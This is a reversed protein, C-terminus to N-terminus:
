SNSSKELTTVPLKITSYYCVSDYWLMMSHWPRSLTRLAWEAGTGLWPCPQGGLEPQGTGWGAQGPAGGPNPCWLKQPCCHWPRVARQTFFKRRM